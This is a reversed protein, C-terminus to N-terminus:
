QDNLKAIACWGLPHHAVVVAVHHDVGDGAVERLRSGHRRAPADRDDQGGALHQGGVAVRRGLARGLEGLHNRVREFLADGVLDFVQMEGNTVAVRRRPRTGTTTIARARM